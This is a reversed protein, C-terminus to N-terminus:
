TNIPTTSQRYYFKRQLHADTWKFKITFAGVFKSIYKVQNEYLLENEICYRFFGDTDYIDNFEISTSGDVYIQVFVFPNGKFNVYFLKDVLNLIEECKDLGDFYDRIKKVERNSIAFNCKVFKDSNNFSIHAHNWSTVGSLEIKERFDSVRVCKTLYYEFESVNKQLFQYGEKNGQTDFSEIRTSGDENRYFYHTTMLSCTELDHEKVEYNLKM